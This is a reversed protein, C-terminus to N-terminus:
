YFLVCQLGVIYYLTIYYLHIQRTILSFGWFWSLQLIIVLTNVSSNTLSVTAYCYDVEFPPFISLWLFSFLSYVKELMFSTAIIRKLYSTTIHCVPLILFLSVVEKEFQFIAALYAEPCIVFLTDKYYFNISRFLKQGM